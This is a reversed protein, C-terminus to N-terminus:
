AACFKETRQALRIWESVEVVTPLTMEALWGVTNKQQAAEIAALLQTPTHHGIRQVSGFGAAALLRAAASSLQPLALVLRAECQWAIFVEFSIASERLRAVVAQPKAALLEAVSRIEVTALRGATRPGLALVDCVNSHLNWQIM